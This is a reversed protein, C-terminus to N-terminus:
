REEKKFYERQLRVAKDIEKKPTADSKKIFGHTLIILRDKDRFCFLRVQFSKFEWIDVGKLKHFREENRPLGNDASNQLLAIVKKQDKRELGEIFDVIHSRGSHTISCIDHRKGRYIITIDM